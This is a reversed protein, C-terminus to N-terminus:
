LIYKITFDKVPEVLISYFLPRSSYTFVDIYFLPLRWPAPTGDIDKSVVPQSQSTLEVPCMTHNVSFHPDSVATSYTSLSTVMLGYDSSTSILSDRM